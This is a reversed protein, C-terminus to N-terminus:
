STSVLASLRRQEIEDRAESMMSCVHEITMVKVPERHHHQQQHMPKATSASVSVDDDAAHMSMTQAITISENLTASMETLFTSRAAARRASAPRRFVSEVLYAAVASDSDIGSSMHEPMSEPIDDCHLPSTMLTHHVTFSRQKEDDDSHLVQSHSMVVSANIVEADADDHHDEEEEENDDVVVYQEEEHAHDRLGDSRVSNMKAAEAAAM